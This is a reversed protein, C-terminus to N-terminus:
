VSAGSCASCCASARKSRLTRARTRGARARQRGLRAVRGHGAPDTRELVARRRGREPPRGLDGDAHPRDQWGARSRDARQAALAQAVPDSRLALAGARRARRALFRPRSRPDARASRHVHAELVRRDRAHARLNGARAHGHQHTGSDAAHRPAQVGPRQHLRRRRSRACKSLVGVGARARRLLVPGLARAHRQDFQDPEIRVHRLHGSSRRAPSAAVRLAAQLHSSQARVQLRARALARSGLQGRAAPQGERGASQQASLRRVSAALSVSAGPSVAPFGDSGAALAARSVVVVVADLEQASGLQQVSLGRGCRVHARARLCEHLHAPGGRVAAHRAARAAHHQRAPTPVGGDDGHQLLRLQGHSSHRDDAAGHVARLGLQALGSFVRLVAGPDGRSVHLVRGAQARQDPTETRVLRAALAAAPQDSLRQSLRQGQPSQGPVETQRLRVDLSVRAFPVGLRAAPAPAAVAMVDPLAHTAPLFLARALDVRVALLGLPFILGMPTDLALYCVYCVLLAWHGASGGYVVVCASAAGVMTFGRLM